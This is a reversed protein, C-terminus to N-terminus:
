TAFVGDRQWKLLNNIEEEPVPKSVLYGQFMDCGHKKLYDLQNNTEIGEGIVNLGLQKALLIIAGTISQVDDESKIDAIFSKDIKLTNIPLTKLYTLSSYGCGFDDMAIRINNDKLKRLNDIVLDYSEMLVSETIEILLLEPPIGTNNLTELVFETFDKHLLQLTSVNVSIYFNKFHSDYISKAYKCANEIVWKGIEIIMGNEEALGIFKDPYILGNEPHIWRILAEFGKVKGNTVDIIPQYYLVFENNELARHLNAEMKVKEVATDGMAKEYFTYTGKGSSKSIYMATDANKLLENFNLGDEPYFVTGISATVRFINGDIFIPAALCQLLYKSCTEVEEKGNISRILIVFEDGGLRYAMININRVEVLRKGVEFLLKDGVAHGFSDNVVKFNDLDIFFLAFENSRKNCNEIEETVVERLMARNPLGTVSDYYALKNIKQQQEKLETIDTFAGFVTTANGNEDFECKTNSLLWKYKEDKCRVRYEFAKLSVKEDIQQKIGKKVWEIDEPHIISFWADFPEMESTKYGLIEHLKESFYRKKNVLDGEWIIDMTSEALLRYREESKQLEEQKEMLQHFNEKLEEDSAAIEEYLAMLEENKDMLEKEDRTRIYINRSLLSIIIILFFTPSLLFDMFFRYINM